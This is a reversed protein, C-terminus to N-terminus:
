PRPAPKPSPWWDEARELLQALAETPLVYGALGSQDSPLSVLTLIEGRADFLPTGLPLPPGFALRHYAREPEAPPGGLAVELVVPPTADLKLPPGDVKPATDDGSTGRGGRTPSRGGFRSSAPEPESEPTAAEDLALGVVEVEANLEVMPLRVVTRGRRGPGVAEDVAARPPGDLRGEAAVSAVRGGRLARGEEAKSGVASGARPPAELGPVDLVALGIRADMLGVAARLWRGDPAQVTLVDSTGPWGAVAAWATVVRGPAAHWGAGIWPAALPRMRRVVAVQGRLFAAEALREAESQVDELELSVEPRREIAAPEEVPTRGWGPRALALLACVRVVRAARGLKWAEGRRRGDPDRRAM